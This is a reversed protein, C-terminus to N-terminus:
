MCASRLDTVTATTTGNANVTFHITTKEMFDDGTGLSINDGTTEGQRIMAHNIVLTQDYSGGSPANFDLVNEDNLVYKKPNLPDATSGQAKTIVRFTFHTGGSGDSRTYVFIDIQGSLTIMDSSECQNLNGAMMFPISPLQTAQALARTPAAFATLLLVFGGFILLTILRGVTRTEKSRTFM